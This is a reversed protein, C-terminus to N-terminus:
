IQLNHLGTWLGSTTNKQSEKWTIRVCTQHTNPITTKSSYLVMVLSVGGLHFRRRITRASIQVGKQNLEDKIQMSVKSRDMESIQEIMDDQKHSTKRNRGSGKKRKISRSNRWKLFIRQATSHSCFEKREIERFSVGKLVLSIINQKETATLQPFCRKNITKSSRNPKNAKAKMTIKKAL